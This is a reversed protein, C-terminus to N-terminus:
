NGGKRMLVRLKFDRRSFILPMVVQYGLDYRKVNMYTRTEQEQDYLVGIGKGGGVVPAKVASVRGVFYGASADIKNQLEPQESILAEITDNGQTNIEQRMPARKEVSITRCAAISILVVVISLCKFINSPKKAIM